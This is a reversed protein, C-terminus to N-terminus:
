VDACDPQRACKARGDIGAFCADVDREAIGVPLRQVDDRTPAHVADPHKYGPHERALLQSADSLNSAKIPVQSAPITQQPLLGPASARPTKSATTVQNSTNM